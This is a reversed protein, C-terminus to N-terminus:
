NNESIEEFISAYFPYTDKTRNNTNDVIHSLKVRKGVPPNKQFSLMCKGCHYNNNEDQEVVCIMSEYKSKLEDEPIDRWFSKNIDVDGNEELYSDFWILTDCLMFAISFLLHPTEIKNWYAVLNPNDKTDVETTHSAGGTIELIFKVNKSVLFPFHSKECYVGSHVAPLGSMFLSSDTLNIHDNKDFCKNHLLGAKRAARFMWELIVRIPNYYLHSNIKEVCAAACLIDLLNKRCDPGELRASAIDLVKSYESEIIWRKINTVATIIDERLDREHEAKIYINHTVYNRAYARGELMRSIDNDNNTIKDQGSFVFWLKNHFESNIYQIANSFDCSYENQNLVDLIAADWEFAKSKEYFEEINECEILEFSKKFLVVTGKLSEKKIDDDLWIVRPKM